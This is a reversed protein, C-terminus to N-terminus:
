QAPSRMLYTHGDPAVCVVIPVQRKDKYTCRGPPLTEGRQEAASRMRAARQQKRTM